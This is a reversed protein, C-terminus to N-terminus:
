RDCYFIAWNANLGMMVLLILLGAKKFLRAEPRVEVDRRLNRHPWTKLSLSLRRNM